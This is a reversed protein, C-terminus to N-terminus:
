FVGVFSKQYHKSDLLINTLQSKFNEIEQAVLNEELELCTDIISEIYDMSKHSLIESLPLEVIKGVEDILLLPDGVEDLQNSKDILKSLEITSIVNM